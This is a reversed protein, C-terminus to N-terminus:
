AILFGVWIGGEGTVHEPFALLSTASYLEKRRKKEQFKIQDPLKTSYKFKFV